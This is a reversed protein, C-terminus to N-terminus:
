EVSQREPWDRSHRAPARSLLMGAQIVARRDSQGHPHSITIGQPMRAGLLSGCEARRLEATRHGATFSERRSFVELRLSLGSRTRSTLKSGTKPKSIISEQNSGGANSQEANLNVSGTPSRRANWASKNLESWELGTWNLETWIMGTWKLESLWPYKLKVRQVQECEYEGDISISFISFWECYNAM